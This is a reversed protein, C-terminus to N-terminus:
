ESWDSIAVGSAVIMVPPRFGSPLSGTAIGVESPDMGTPVPRVQHGHPTASGSYPRPLPEAGLTVTTRCEVRFTARATEPLSELAACGRDGLM